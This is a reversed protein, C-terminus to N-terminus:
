SKTFADLELILKELGSEDLKGDGNIDNEKLFKHYRKVGNAGFLDKVKDEFSDLEKGELSGTKDKDMEKLIKLGVKRDETKVEKETTKLEKITKKIEKKITAESVSAKDLQKVIKKVNNVDKEAVNFEKAATGLEKEVKVEEKEMKVEDKVTFGGRLGDVQLWAPNSLFAALVICALVSTALVFYAPCLLLRKTTIERSPMKLMPEIDTEEQHLAMAKTPVDEKNSDAM